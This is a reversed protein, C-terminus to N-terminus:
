RYEVPFAKKEVNRMYNIAPYGVVLGMLVREGAKLKLFEIYETSIEQARRLFGVYCSGLNCAQAMLTMNQGIMGADPLYKEEGVIIIVTPAGFMVSDKGKIEYDSIFKKWREIYEEKRFFQLVEEESHTNMWDRYVGILEQLLSEKEEQYVLLRIQRCNNATPACQGAYLIKELVKRPVQRSLYNRISRRDTILNELEESSPIIEPRQETQGEIDWSVAQQPCVEICQGCDQCTESKISAKQEVKINGTGYSCIEACLGCGICKEEDIIVM